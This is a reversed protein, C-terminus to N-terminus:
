KREKSRLTKDKTQLYDPRTKLMARPLLAVEEKWDKYFAPALPTFYPIGVSKLNMIHIALTILALIIGYLGFLTAALIFAFLLFRFTITISYVPLSFTAIATVAIVIVMFPNVIGASVAAEGIVLGGVIGVTQGIQKPLRLGAERILEMTLTMIITEIYAPFPVGERAGAISYALNSPILGQHYSVLAVYVAPLLIAMLGALMRLGRLLTGIIWREYHDEPSQFIDVIVMPAIVAFPSGDVLIVAKGKALSAIARDPRETNLFQPFPSLTNEELLHEVKGSDLIVDTEISQLRRNLENVIYPNIIDEIYILTVEKQSRKGMIYSQFRLKPDRLERRILMKNTAIDETFGIKPGRIINETIPPELSRREWARSNIVLAHSIGDILVVTDGVLVSNIVDSFTEVINVEGISIFRDLLTQMIPVKNPIEEQQLPRIIFRYILDKDTLGCLFVVACRTSSCSLAFERVTLDNPSQLTERISNTIASLSGELNTM